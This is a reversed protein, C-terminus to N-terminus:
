EIDDDDSSSSLYQTGSKARMGIDTRVIGRFRTNGFQGAFPTCRQAVSAAGLNAFKPNMWDRLDYTALLPECVDMKGAGRLQTTKGKCEWEKNKNNIATLLDNIFTNRSQIKGSPTNQKFWIQYMQYLMTFPLLDWSAQPLIEEAFQRVPDNYEKYEELALRCAEPESLSYYNMNLVKFKM